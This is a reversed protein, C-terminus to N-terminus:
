KHLSPPCWASPNNQVDRGPYLSTNQHMSAKSMAHHNLRVDMAAILNSRRVLLDGEPEMAAEGTAESAEDAEVDGTPSVTASSKPELHVCFMEEGGIDQIVTVHGARYSRSRGLIVKVPDGVSLPILSTFAAEIHGQTVGPMDKLAAAVVSLLQTAQDRHGLRIAACYSNGLQLVVPHSLAHEVSRLEVSQMAFRRATDHGFVLQMTGNFDAEGAKARRCVGNILAECVRPLHGQRRVGMEEVIGSRAGITDLGPIKLIEALEDGELLERCLSSIDLIPNGGQIDAVMQMCVLRVDEKEQRLANCTQESESILPSVGM